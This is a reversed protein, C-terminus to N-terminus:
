CASIRGSITVSALPNPFPMGIPTHRARPLAASISPGPFWPEVKPPLGNEQATPRVTIFWISSSLSASRDASSPSRIIALNLSRRPLRLLTLSMLPLPRIIPM